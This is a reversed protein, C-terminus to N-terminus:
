PMAGAVAPAAAARRGADSAATPDVLAIETGSAVGEIVAHSETRHKVQVTRPEFAGGTRAYVIPKGDREFVAHRPVYLVRDLTPGNVVIQATMGPRLRPEAASLTFVADFQRSPGQPGFFFSTRSALGSIGNVRATLQVAPLGEVAVQAPAEVVLNARDSESVRAIVEMSSVDLLDLVHRGSSALDGARYDPLQMGTFFIGGMADRNSRIAVLGDFPARVVLSEIQQTAEQVELQAKRRREEVVALAARNTAERSTLDEELQALRRRAEELSLDNKRADVGSVLDNARSDLEARRVDFRATLLAVRDEAAQVAAEAKMKIIEQEAELLESRDQELQYAQEAPDFEILVEGRRVFAGTPALTVIALTGRVRPAVIMATRTPRLEGSTYTRVQITGQEVRTTPVRAPAATLRSAGRWTLAAAGGAAAIGLVIAIRTARRMM